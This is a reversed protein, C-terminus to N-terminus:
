FPYDPFESKLTIFVSSWREKLEEYYKMSKRKNISLWIYEQLNFLAEENRKLYRSKNYRLLWVEPNNSAFNIRLARVDGVLQFYMVFVLFQIVAVIILIGEM